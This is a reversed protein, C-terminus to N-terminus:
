DVKARGDRRALRRHASPSMGNIRSFGRRFAFGDSYGLREAIADIPLDEDALWTKAMKDLVMDSIERFGTGEAALRRRLTAESLGLRTAISPLTSHPASQMRDRRILSAVLTKVSVRGEKEGVITSLPLGDCYRIIDRAKGVVPKNMYRKPIVLVLEPSDFIVAHRFFLRLASPEMTRPHRIRACVGELPMGVLWEFQSLMLSAAWLDSILGIAGPRRRELLSIEASDATDTRAAPGREWLIRSFRVSLELADGLTPAGTLCHLLLSTKERRDPDVRSLGREAFIWDLYLASFDKLASEPAEGPLLAAQADLALAAIILKETITELDARDAALEM